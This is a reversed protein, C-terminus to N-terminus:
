VVQTGDAVARDPRLVVAGQSPSVAALVVAQAGRTVVVVQTGELDSPGYNETIHSVAELVGAGVDVSLRLAGGELVAATVTGIRLDVDTFDM